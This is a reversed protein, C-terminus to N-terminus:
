KCAIGSQSDGQGVTCITSSEKNTQRISQAVVQNMDTAKLNKLLEARAIQEGTGAPLIPVGDSGVVNWSQNEYTKKNANFQTQAVQSAFKSNVDYIKDSADSFLKLLTPDKIERANVIERYLHWFQEYTNPPSEESRDLYGLGLLSQFLANGDTSQGVFNTYQGYESSLTFGLNSLQRIRNATATDEPYEKAILDALAKLSNAYVETGGDVGVTEVLAASQTPYNPLTVVSGNALTVQLNQVGPVGALSVPGKQGQSAQIPPPPPKKQISNSFMSSLNSGLLSLSVIGVIGVLAVPLM